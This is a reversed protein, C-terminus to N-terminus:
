QPEFRSRFRTSALTADVFSTDALTERSPLPALYQVEKLRRGARALEALTPLFRLKTDGLDPSAWRVPCEQVQLGLRHAIALWEAAWGDGTSHAREALAKGVPQSFALAGGFSDRVGSRVLCRAAISLVGECVRRAWAAKREVESDALARSALAVDAGSALADLLGAVDELAVGLETGLVVVRKGRSLLVGTRAAAGRGRRRAHRVVRLADVHETWRAAVEGSGDSSADDVVVFEHTVRRAECFGVLQKLTRGVVRAQNELLLVVSLVPESTKAVVGRKRARFRKRDM